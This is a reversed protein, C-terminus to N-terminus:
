SNRRRMPTDFKYQCQKRDEFTLDILLSLNAPEKAKEWPTISIKSSSSNIVNELIREPLYPHRKEMEDKSTVSTWNSTEPYIYHKEKDGHAAWFYGSKVSPLEIVLIGSKKNVKGDIMSSYLEWDIHKRNKTGIGALLITVTSDRLYEDRIKVRIEEDTLDDSVDGSDVSRDIFIDYYDGIRVIEEKYCQDNDHHYSIFVKHLM